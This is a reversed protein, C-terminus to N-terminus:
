NIYTVDRIQGGSKRILPHWFKTIHDGGQIKALAPREIYLIDIVVNHLRPRMERFYRTQALSNFDLNANRYQSYSDNHEVMDSVLILRQDESTSRAFTRLGAFKLMEMIPSSNSPTLEALGMLSDKIPAKFSEEWNTMLKKLNNTAGSLNKGTGPNCVILSPQFRDPDDRLFYITFREYIISSRVVQELQNSLDELQATSVAETADILVVTERPFIGDNRCNTAADTKITAQVVKTYQFLFLALLVLVLGIIIVPLSNNTKKRRSRGRM